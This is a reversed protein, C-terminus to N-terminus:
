RPFPQGMTKKIAKYIIDLGKQYQKDAALCLSLDRFSQPEESRIKVVEEYIAIALDYYELQELRHALIRILEHNQVKMEAINSLIRLGLKKDGQKVFYNAVDLYFSPTAAYTKKLALYAEYKNKAEKIETMYPTQPDWANLQISSVRETESKDKKKGGHLFGNQQEIVEDEVM